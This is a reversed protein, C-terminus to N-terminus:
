NSNSKNNNNNNNNHNGGSSSTFYFYSFLKHHHHLYKLIIRTRLTLRWVIAGGKQTTKIKVERAALAVTITVMVM